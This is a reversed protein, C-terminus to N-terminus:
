HPQHNGGIPSVTCINEHRSRYNCDGTELFLAKNEDCEANNYQGQFSRVYALGSKERLAAQAPRHGTWAARLPFDPSGYM